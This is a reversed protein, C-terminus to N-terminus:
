GLLVGCVSQRHVEIFQSRDIVRFEQGGEAEGTSSKGLHTCTHRWADMDLRVYPCISVCECVLPVYVDM